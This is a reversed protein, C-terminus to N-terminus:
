DESLSFESFDESIVIEIEVTPIITIEREKVPQNNGKDEM